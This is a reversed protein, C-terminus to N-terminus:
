KLPLNVLWFSAGSMGSINACSPEPTAPLGALLDFGAWLQFWLWSDCWSSSQDLLWLLLILSWVLVTLLRDYAPKCIFPCHPQHSVYLLRDFYINIRKNKQTNVYISALWLLIFTSDLLRHVQKCNILHYVISFQEQSLTLSIKVLGCSESRIETHERIKYKLNSYKFNTKGEQYKLIRIPLRVWLYETIAHIRFYTSYIIVMETM